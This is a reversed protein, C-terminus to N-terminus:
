NFSWQSLTCLQIRGGTAATFGVWATKGGVISQINVNQSYTYTNSPSNLNTITYSLTTGNYTVAVGLNWTGGGAALGLVSSISGSAGLSDTISGNTLIDTSFNGSTALSYTDLRIAVSPSIPRYGLGGGGFAATGLATASSNQIVFTAGDANVNSFNIVFYSTFAEINLKAPYHAAGRQDNSNPTLQILSGNISANGVLVLNGSVFSSFSFSFRRAIINRNTALTPKGAPQTAHSHGGPLSATLGWKQALYSEVQQRETTGLASNYVIVEHIYGMMYENSFTRGIVNNGASQNRPTSPTNTTTVSFNQILSRQGGSIYFSEIAVIQNTAYTTSSFIDNAYWYEYFGGGAGNTRFAISTSPTFGGGGLVGAWISTGSGTGLSTFNAIIFYSYSTNGIPFTSDPLTYYQLSGSFYIAKSALDYTPNNVQTGNKSNGSKDVWTSVTAGNAPIVGNGAPDAGDLWLACGPIQRPTFAAYYPLARMVNQKTYDSRYLTTSRGPHSSPLSDTLGWKQALYGEVQQRQTDSVPNQYWVIEAIDGALWCDIPNIGVPVRYGINLYRANNTHPYTTGSYFGGNQATMASSTGNKFITTNAPATGSSLLNLNMMMYTNTTTQTLAVNAKSCGQHIGFNGTDVNGTPCGIESESVCFTGSTQNQYTMLFRQSSNNTIMFVFFFSGGSSASTYFPLTTSSQLGTSTGNWRTLSCGNQIGVKYTPQNGSTPQTFVYANPSKDKWAAITQGDTTIPTTAATNQFMTGSDAGDLWLACGTISTPVFGYVASQFSM